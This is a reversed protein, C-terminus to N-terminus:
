VEVIKKSYADTILALYSPTERRGVYTIDSGWVQEQKNIKLNCVKNKHKRFRHHSDTTIHYSKRPIILLHNAQLIRFLKDRGIKIKKLDEELLYYLKIKGLRPMKMRLVRVLHMVQQALNQKRLKSKKTRYYVQRNVGLLGCTSVITEKTQERYQDIVETHLKKKNQIDYEREAM